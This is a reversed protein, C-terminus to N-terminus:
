EEEKRQKVAREGTPYFIVEHKPEERWTWMRLYVSAGHGRMLALWDGWGKEELWNELADAEMDEPVTDIFLQPTGRVTVAWRTM